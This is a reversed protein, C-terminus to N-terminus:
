RIGARRYLESTRDGAYRLDRGETVLRLEGLGSLVARSVARELGDQDIGGGSAARGENLAMLTGLNLRTADASVVFEGASLRALVSDSTGTGPGTVLGGRAFRQPDVYVYGIGSAYYGANPNAPQGGPAQATAAGVPTNTVAQAGPSTADLRAQERGEIRRNQAEANAAVAAGLVMLGTGALALRAAKAYLGALALAAAQQLLMRGISRAIDAIIMKTAVALSALSDEVGSLGDQIGEGLATFAEIGADAVINMTEQLREAEMQLAELEVIKQYIDWREGATQAGLFREQLVALNHNVSELAGDLVTTADALLEPLEIVADDLEIEGAVKVAIPPSNTGADRVAQITRDREELMQQRVQQFLTPLHEAYEERYAEIEQDVELRIQEIVREQGEQMLQLQLERRKLALERTGDVDPADDDDDESGSRLAQIQEELAALDARKQILEDTEEGQDVLADVEARLVAARYELSGQGRKRTEALGEELDRQHETLGTLEKQVDLLRGTNAGLAGTSTRIREKLEAEEALLAKRRESLAIIEEQVRVERELLQAGHLDELDGTLDQVVQRQEKLAVTADDTRRRFILLAAVVTALVSAIAAYPNAKAVLNFTRQAATARGTAVALSNVILTKAKLIATWARSVITAGQVWGRYAGIAAGLVALVRVVGMISDKHDRAWVIASTTTDILDKLHDDAVDWGDIALAEVTKHLRAVAGEYNDTQILAQEFATETGSVRTTMEGVADANQILIQAANLNERGFVETLASADSLLPTLKELTAAMGDGEVNVGKIGLDALKGTETRLITIVNRLGTGAEGGKLANQSMVELLAVTEEFSVNAQAATTGSNKLALGLDPVEAAGAKAGAALTNVVRTSESASLQFQNLSGSVIDAATALDVKSAQSLTVVESGLKELGSVGGITAIDINSALLKYAEIQDRAAVGTRISEDVATDGLRKLDAGAIGTIAELEDLQSEVETGAQRMAGPIRLLQAQVRMIADAALNGLAFDMVRGFRTAEQGMPRFRGSADRLREDAKATKKGVDDVAAGVSKLGIVAGTTGDIELELQIKRSM